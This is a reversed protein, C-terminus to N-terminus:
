SKEAYLSTLRCFDSISIEEPRAQLPLNLEQLLAEGDIHHSKLTTKIMKRRQQFLLATLDYFTGLPPTGLPTLRRSLSAVASTISPRPVFAQPPVTFLATPAYLRQVLVTLRGYDASKPLATLRDIVEKQMMVVMKEILLADHQVWEVLLRTGVNYPLNSVIKFPQGESLASLSQELADNILLTFPVEPYNSALEELIDRFRPDKEILILRQPRAEFLFRTLSGIGPGIEIIIDDQDIEVQEVIKRAINADILFNQGLSKRALLGKEKLLQGIPKQM